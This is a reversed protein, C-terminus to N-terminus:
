EGIFTVKSTVSLILRCDKNENKYFCYMHMMSFSLCQSSCPNHSSGVNQLVPSPRPPGEPSIWPAEAEQGRSKARRGRRRTNLRLM